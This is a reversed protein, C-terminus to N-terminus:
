NDSSQTSNIAATGIVSPDALKMIATNLERRIAREKQRDYQNLLVQVKFRAEDKNIALTKVSLGDLVIYGEYAAVVKKLQDELFSPTYGFKLAMQFDVSLKKINQKSQNIIVSSFMISNPIIVMDNDENQFVTNVLTIDIIKGEVEGVKVHDGLSLQDSFMIILGNIMNSIYDKSLLAIAAAVITISTLFEFPDRGLFVIFALIFFVVNLISQIRDIGLIFNDKITPQLHHKRVYIFIVLQRIASITLSPGLFLFLGSNIQYLFLYHDFLLPPNIKFYVTLSFVLAKALISLFEKNTKREKIAFM